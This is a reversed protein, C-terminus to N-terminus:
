INQMNQTNNRGVATVAANKQTVGSPPGSRRGQAETKGVAQERNSATGLSVLLVALM